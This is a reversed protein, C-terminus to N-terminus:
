LLKNPSTISFIRITLRYDTHHAGDTTHALCYLILLVHNVPSMFAGVTYGLTLFSLVNLFPSECRSIYLQRNTPPQVIVVATSDIRDSVANLQVQFLPLRSM